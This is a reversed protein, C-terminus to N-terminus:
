LQGRARAHEVYFRFTEESTKAPTYGFEEKLRRNSLVPRYRLFNVQEPGYRGVGLRRACWLAGIILWAPLARVPKGLIAAIQHVTLAGDGAMNYIGSRDERIGAEMAGIVDEDWIFVFPSDSGQVAIVRKAKFLNTILNDTASGLMTGPRFVLQTLEPHERRYDALLAEIQRKHDAYAFVANGRLPDNEDIWEPNDPHYGYAAGSSTVTLHRVGARQCCALLNRTGNVDIDYDRARDRSAELVSALHVVHSIRKERLLQELAPDRIDLLHIPFSLERHRIDTGVVFNGRALREGLLSGIYGAAGTILIRKRM